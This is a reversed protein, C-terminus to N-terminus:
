TSFGEPLENTSVTRPVIIPPSLAKIVKDCEKSTLVIPLSSFHHALDVYNSSLPSVSKNPHDRLSATLTNETQLKLHSFM